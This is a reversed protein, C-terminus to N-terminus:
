IVTKLYMSLFTLFIAVRPLVFFITILLPKSTINKKKKLQIIPIQKIIIWQAICKQIRYKASQFNYKVVFLLNTKKKFFLIKEYENWKMLPFHLSYMHTINRAGKRFGLPSHSIFINMDMIGTKLFSVIKHPFLALLTNCLLILYAIFLSVMRSNASTPNRWFTINNLFQMIFSITEIPLFIIAM